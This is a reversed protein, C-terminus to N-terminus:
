WYGARVAGAPKGSEALDADRVQDTARGVAGPSVGWSRAIDVLRGGARRAALWALIRDDSDRSLRKM